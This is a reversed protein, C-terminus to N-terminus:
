LLNGIPQIVSMNSSYSNFEANYKAFLETYGATHYSLVLFEYEEQLPNSWQSNPIDLLVKFRRWHKDFIEAIQQRYSEALEKLYKNFEATFKTEEKIDQSKGVFTQLIQMIFSDNEKQLQQSTATMEIILQLRNKYLNLQKFDEVIKKKCPCQIEDMRISILAPKVFLDTGLLLTRQLYLITLQHFDTYKVTPTNNKFFYGYLSIIEGLFRNSQLEALIVQPCDNKEIYHLLLVLIEQEVEVMPVFKSRRDSYLTDLTVLERFCVPAEMVDQTSTYEFVLDANLLLIALARYFDASSSVIEVSQESKKILVQEETLIEITVIKFLSDKLKNQYIFNFIFQIINRHEYEEAYKFLQILNNKLKSRMKENVLSNLLENQIRLFRLHAMEEHRFLYWLFTQYHTAIHNISLDPLTTQYGQECVEIAEIIKNIKNLDDIQKFLVTKENSALSLDSKLM